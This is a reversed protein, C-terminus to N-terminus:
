SAQTQDEELWIREIQDSLGDFWVLLTDVMFCLCRIDLCEPTIEISSGDAETSYRFTVSRPDILSLESIRNLMYESIYSTEDDLGRASQRFAEMLIDLDHGARKPVIGDAYRIHWKLAVEVAHRLNFLAPFILNCARTEEELVKKLLMVSADFYGQWIRCDRWDGGLGFKISPSGNHGPRILRADPDNLFAEYWAMEENEDIPM